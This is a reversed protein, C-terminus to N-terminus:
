QLLKGVEMWGEILFPRSNVSARQTIWQPNSKGIASALELKHALEITQVFPHVSLGMILSIACHKNWASSNATEKDVVLPANLFLEFGIVSISPEDNGNDTEDVRGRPRIKILEFMNCCGHDKEFGNTLANSWMNDPSRFARTKINSLDITSSTFSFAEQTSLTDSFSKEIGISKRKSRLQDLDIAPKVNAMAAVNDIIDRATSEVGEFGSKMGMNSGPILEVILSRTWHHQRQEDQKLKSSEMDSRLSPKINKLPPIWDDDNL